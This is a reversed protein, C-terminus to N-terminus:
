IEANSYCQYRRYKTSQYKQLHGSCLLTSHGNSSPHMANAAPPTLQLNLFSNRSLTQSDCYSWRIRIACQEQHFFHIDTFM